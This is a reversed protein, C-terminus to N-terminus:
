LVMLGPVSDHTCLICGVLSLVTWETLVTASVKSWENAVVLVSSSNAGPAALLKRLTQILPQHGSSSLVVVPVGVLNTM